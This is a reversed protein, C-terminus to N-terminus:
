AAAASLQHYHQETAHMDDFESGAQLRAQPAAEFNSQEVDVETSNSASPRLHRGQRRAKKEEDLDTAAAPGYMRASYLTRPTAGNSPRKEMSSRLAHALADTAAQRDDGTQLSSLVSVMQLRRSIATRATPVINATSNAYTGPELPLTQGPQVAASFVLALKDVIPLVLHDRFSRLATRRIDIGEVHRSSKESADNSSTSLAIIQRIESDTRLPLFIGEIYPMCGIFFFNWVETQSM